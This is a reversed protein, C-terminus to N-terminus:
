IRNVVAQRHQATVGRDVPSVFLSVSRFGPRRVTVIGEPLEHEARFVVSFRQAAGRPAGRLDEVSALVAKRRSGDHELVFTRGVLPKWTARLFGGSAALAPQAGAAGFAVAVPTVLAARTLMRRTVLM